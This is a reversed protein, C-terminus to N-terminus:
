CLAGQGTFLSLATTFVKRASPVTCHQPSCKGPQHSLVTNTHHVSEQSIPCYLTQPSCWEQSVPRCYLTQPSREQSIPPRYLTQTTITQLQQLGHVLVTPDRQGDQLHITPHRDIVEQHLDLSVYQLDVNTPERGEKTWKAWLTLKPFFSALPFDESERAQWKHPSDSTGERSAHHLTSYLREHKAQQWQRIGM